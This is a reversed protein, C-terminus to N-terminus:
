EESSKPGVNSAVSSTFAFRMGFAFSNIRILFLVTDTQSQTEERLLDRLTQAFHRM